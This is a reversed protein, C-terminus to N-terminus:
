ELPRRKKRDAPIWANHPKSWQVVLVPEGAVLRPRAWGLTLYADGAQPTRPGNYHELRIGLLAFTRAEVRDPLERLGPLDIFRGDNGEARLGVSGLAGIVGLGSGGLAKLAIGAAEALRFAEDMGVIQRAARRGFEIVPQDVQDSSAICVGPDSGEAAGAAVFDFAFGAEQVGRGGAVAVCAGSNHSTYPIAPDILFQHRTVGVPKMGRRVCEALLTRALHGTGRSTPNDTDDIGILLAAM